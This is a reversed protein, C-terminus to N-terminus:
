LRRWTVFLVTPVTASSAAVINLSTRTQTSRVRCLADSWDENRDLNGTAIRRRGDPRQIHSALWTRQETESRSWVHNALRSIRCILNLGGLFRFVGKRLPMTESEGGQSPSTPRGASALLTVFGTADLICAAERGLAAFPTTNFFAGAGPCHAKGIYRPFAAPGIQVASDQTKDQRTRREKNKKKKKSVRRLCLEPTPM